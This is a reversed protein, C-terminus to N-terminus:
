SSVRSTPGRGLMGGLTWPKGNDLPGHREQGNVCDIYM